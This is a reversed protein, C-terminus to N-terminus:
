EPSWGFCKDIPVSNEYSHHKSNLDRIGIWGMSSAFVVQVKKSPTAKYGETSSFVKTPQNEVYNCFLKNKNTFPEFDMALGAPLRMNNLVFRAYNIHPEKQLLETSPHTDIFEDVHKMDM